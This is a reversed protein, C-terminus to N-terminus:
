IALLVDAGPLLILHIPDALEGPSFAFFINSLELSISEMSLALVFPFITLKVYTAPELAFLMSLAGKEFAVFYFLTDPVHALALLLPELFVFLGGRQEINVALEITLGIM